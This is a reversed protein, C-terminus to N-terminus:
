LMSIKNQWRVLARVESSSHQNGSKGFHTGNEDSNLIETKTGDIAFM